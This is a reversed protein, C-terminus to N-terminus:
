EFNFQKTLWPLLQNARCFKILLHSAHRFQGPTTQQCLYPSLLRGSLIREMLARAEPWSENQPIFQRWQFNLANVERVESVALPEWILASGPLQNLLQALWTTGGRPDGCIIRAKNPDFRIVRALRLYQVTLWDRRLRNLIRKYM